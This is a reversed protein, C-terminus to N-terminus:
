SYTSGKREGSEEVKKGASRGKCLVGTERRVIGKTTKGCTSGKEKKGVIPV